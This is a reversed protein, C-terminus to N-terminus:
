ENGNGNMVDYGNGKKLVKSKYKCGVNTESKYGNYVDAVDSNSQVKLMCDTLYVDDWGNGGSSWWDKLVKEDETSSSSCNGEFIPLTDPDHKM